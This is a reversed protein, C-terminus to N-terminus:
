HITDTFLGELIKSKTSSSDCNFGKEIELEWNEIEKVKEGM